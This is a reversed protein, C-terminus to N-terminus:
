GLRLAKPGKKTYRLTLAGPHARSGSDPRSDVGAPGSHPRPCAGAATPALTLALAKRGWKGV